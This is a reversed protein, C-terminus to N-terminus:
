KQYYLELATLNIHVTIISRVQQTLLMADILKFETFILIKPKCHSLLGWLTVHDMQPIASTMHSSTSHKAANLFGLVMTSSCFVEKRVKNDAYTLWEKAGTIVTTFLLPFPKKNYLGFCQVNITVLLLSFLMRTKTSAPLTLLCSNFNHIITM